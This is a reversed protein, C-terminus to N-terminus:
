HEVCRQGGAKVVTPGVDGVDGVMMMVQVCAQATMVDGGDVVAREVSGRKAQGVVTMMM